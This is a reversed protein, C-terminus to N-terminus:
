ADTAEAPKARNLEYKALRIYQFIPIKSVCVYSCLGCEICSYLDYGDAADQYHGAELFRVLMNVPMQAPCARVCNGCNICPYDSAYAAKTRDLVMIADTDPLVPQDLSYVASGRMPGGFIIRDAENITVEYAALIDRIPTGIPTEIIRQNEEKTILTLRKRVPIQGTEYASGISVVAEVSMFCVGLDEASKGAPVVEGLVKKMIMQPLAAPYTTDISRGEAGIHGYGQLADRATVLIIREVGSIQKLIRIGSKLDAIRTKAIYQRTGVLLDADVGTIVIAKIPKEPAALMALPPSGPTFALYDLSNALTPSQCHSAFEADPGENDDISITVASYTKGFDGVHPSIGSITGGASAIVYAPSDAYLAIKQGAKVRDGAQFAAPAKQDHAKPHYLTVTKSAKVQEPAPLRSPLLQYEFQPIFLGVFSKKLM